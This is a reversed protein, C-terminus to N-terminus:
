LVSLVKSHFEHVGEIQRTRLAHAESSSSTNTTKLLKIGRNLAKMSGPSWQSVCSDLYHAPLFRPSELEVLPRFFIQSCMWQADLVVRHKKTIITKLVRHEACDQSTCWTGIPGGSLCYTCLGYTPIIFGRVQPGQKIPLCYKDFRQSTSEHGCWGRIILFTLGSPHDVRFRRRLIDEKAALIEEKSPNLPDQSIQQVRYGFYLIMYQHSLEPPTGELPVGMLDSYMRAFDPNSVPSAIESIGWTELHNSKKWSAM